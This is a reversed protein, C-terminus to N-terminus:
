PALGVEILLAISIYIARLICSRVVGVTDQKDISHMRNQLIEAFILPQM